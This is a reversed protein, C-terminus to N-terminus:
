QESSMSSGTLLLADVNNIDPYSDPNNEIQHMSIDLVDGVDGFGEAKAGANLLSEFVGGYGGFRKRTEPLPTDCELIALRIRQRM